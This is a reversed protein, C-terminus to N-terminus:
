AEGESRLQLRVYFETQKVFFANELKWEKQPDALSLTYRRLITPILKYMELYSISKGLCEKSGGGFAFMASNMESKRQESVEIWREPRFEGCREGFVDEKQHLVWASAGVITGAPLFYKGVQLGSAPVVRELPLGIAPHLRLSEQIVATLYPLERSEKWLVIGDDRSFHASNLEKLLAKMTHPEKLLCYFVTRLTIATTDAGGFVNGVMLGLILRDDFFEPDKEKLLLFRDLIDPPLTSNSAEISKKASVRQIIRKGAFAPIPSLKQGIGHASLFMRIPNKMLVKDLWPMQGVVSFYNVITQLNSIVGDVDTARELFGIRETFALEGIVDFAFYHLWTGFDCVGADGDKDLYRQDLENILTSITSDVLPEFQAVTSVAYTSAIAKRLKAHYRNDTTNFLSEISKGQAVTRQVPYFESKVYATNFGYIEKVVKLDSISVMNPGLRVADGYKAHLYQHALEPRRRWTVFFRWLDTVSALQPGPIKSLGPKFKQLLANSVIAALILWPLNSLITSASLYRFESM